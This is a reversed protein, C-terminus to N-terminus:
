TSRYVTSAFDPLNQTPVTGYPFECLFDAKGLWTTDCNGRTSRGDMRTLLQDGCRPAGILTFFAHVAGWSHSCPRARDLSGPSPHGVNLARLVM